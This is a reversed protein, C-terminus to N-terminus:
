ADTWVMEGGSGPGIGIIARSMGQGLEEGEVDSAERDCDRVGGKGFERGEEGKGSGDCM